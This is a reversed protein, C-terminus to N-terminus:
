ESKFIFSIACLFLFVIKNLNSLEVSKISLSMGLRETIINHGVKSRTVKSIAFYKTNNVVFSKVTGM